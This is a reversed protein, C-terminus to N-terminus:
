HPPEVAYGIYIGSLMAFIYAQLGAVLVWEFLWFAVGVPLAIFGVVVSGLLIPFGAAMIILLHGALLNAFLRVSLSVLRLLQSLVELVFIVPKIAAPAEPILTKVYGLPGHAKVGEYHTLLFVVITLALTVSINATAAYLGVDPIGGPFTGTHPAFPLPIFSILNNVAIFLFLTAIFPFYKAFIKDPLTARGIQSETFEYAIELVNQPGRPKLTVGSRVVLLGLGTIIAASIWMYIVAKNISMDILGFDLDVYPILEFEEAPDFEEEEAALAASPLMLLTLLGLLAALLRRSM